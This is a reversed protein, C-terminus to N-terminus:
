GGAGGPTCQAPAPQRLHSFLRFECDPDGCHPCRGQWASSNKSNKGNELTAHNNKAISDIANLAQALRVAGHGYIVQWSAPQRSLAARLLTDVPERAHPGDRLLGDAVWPLDLGMVLTLDYHRQHSLAFAYLSEDRFLLHSYIAVMLPTTDAIVFDTGDDSRALVRRAQERAIPAQEDPRPTRGQRDCWERLVEHVVAVQQGRARLAAALAASLVTKGTSEAGLLAVRQPRKESRTM